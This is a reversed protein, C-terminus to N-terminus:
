FACHFYIQAEDNGSSSRPEKLALPGDVATLKGREFADIRDESEAPWEAEIEIVREEDLSDWVLDSLPPRKAPELREIENQISALNVEAFQREM